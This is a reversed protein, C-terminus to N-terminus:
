EINDGGAASTPKGFRMSYALVFKTKIVQFGRLPLGSILLLFVLLTNYITKKTTSLEYGSNILTNRAVREFYIINQKDDKKDLKRWKGVSDNSIGKFILDSHHKGIYDDSKKWYNFMNVSYEISCFDCINVMTNVPDSVLDEYRIEIHRETALNLLSTRVKNVKYSWELGAVAPNSKTADMKKWSLYLDRGDRVIHVFIADPFLKSLVPIMRFFSPTKDGWNKKGELVSYETYLEAILNGIAVSKKDAFEHTLKDITLGWLKFQSNGKLYELFNIIETNNLATDIDKVKRLLPMLFTGEEPIALTSGANLILRLLTTGSRQAGIIFISKNM